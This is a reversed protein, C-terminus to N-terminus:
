ESRKKRNRRRAELRTDAAEQREALEIVATAPSLHLWDAALFINRSPSCGSILAFADAFHAREVIQADARIATECASRVLQIVSGFGGEGASILRHVFDDSALDPAMRMQAHKEIVGQVIVRVRDVDAPFTLPELEVVTSRNRLQPEYELFQALSPVGSLVIHLPWGEIQLLSKVTDALNQITQRDNGKLLHQAEDIVVLLVQRERLIGKALEFLEYGAMRSTDLPHGAVEILKRAFLKETVPKPCDFHIMTRRWEGHRDLQPQLEPRSLLTRQLVTSKGSGSEGILFLARRKGSQGDESAVLNEVLDSVALEAKAHVHSSVYLDELRGRRRARERAKPDLLAALRGTAEKLTDNIHDKRDGNVAPMTKDKHENLPTIQHHSDNTM